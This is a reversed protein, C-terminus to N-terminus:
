DDDPVGPFMTADQAEGVERRRFGAFVVLEPGDVRLVWLLLRHAAANNLGRRFADSAGGEGGCLGDFVGVGEGDADVGGAADRGRGAGDDERPVSQTSTRCSRRPMAGHSRESELMVSEGEKRRGHVFIRFDLRDAFEELVDADVALDGLERW